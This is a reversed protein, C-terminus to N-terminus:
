FNHFMANQSAVMHKMLDLSHKKCSYDHHVMTTLTTAVLAVLPM